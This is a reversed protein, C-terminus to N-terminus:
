PPPRLPACGFLVRYNSSPAAAAAATGPPRPPSRPVSPSLFPATVYPPMLSSSAPCSTAPPWTLARRDLSCGPLGLASRVSLTSLLSFRRSTREGSSERRACLRLGPPRRPPAAQHAPAPTPPGSRTHSPPQLGLGNPARLRPPSLSLARRQQRKESRKRAPQAAAPARGSHQQAPNGAGATSAAAGGVRKNTSRLV